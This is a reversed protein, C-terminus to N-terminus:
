KGRPDHRATVWAPPTHSDRWIALHSLFSKIWTAIRRIPPSPLPGEESLLSMLASAGNYADAEPDIRGESLRVLEQWDEEYGNHLSAVLHGVIRADFGGGGFSFGSEHWELVDDAQENRGLGRLHTAVIKITAHRSIYRPM